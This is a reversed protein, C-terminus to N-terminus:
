FGWVPLDHRNLDPRPCWIKEMYTSNNADQQPHDAKAEGKQCFM